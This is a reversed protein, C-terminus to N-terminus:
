IAHYVVTVNNETIVQSTWGDLSSKTALLTNGKWIEFESVANTYVPNGGDFDSPILINNPQSVVFVADMGSDGQPGVNQGGLLPKSSPAKKTPYNYESGFEGM